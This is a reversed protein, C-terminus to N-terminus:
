GHPRRGHHPAGYGHPEGCLACPWPFEFQIPRVRRGDWHRDVWRQLRPPWLTEWALRPGCHIGYVEVFRGTARRLALAVPHGLLSDARGRAIDEATVTVRV